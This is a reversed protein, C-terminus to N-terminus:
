AGVPVAAGAMQELRGDEFARRLTRRSVNFHPRYKREIARDPMDSRFDDLMMRAIVPPFTAQPRGGLRGTGRLPSKGNAVREADAEARRESEADRHGRIIRDREAPDLPTKRLRIQSAATTM